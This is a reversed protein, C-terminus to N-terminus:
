LDCQNLMFYYEFINNKFNEILLIEKDKYSFIIYITISIWKRYIIIGYVAKKLGFYGTFIRKKEANFNIFFRLIM